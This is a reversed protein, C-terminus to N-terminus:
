CTATEKGRLVVRRIDALAKAMAEIMVPTLVEGIQSRALYRGDAKMDSAIRDLDFDAVCAVAKAIEDDGSPAPVSVFGETWEDRDLEVKELHFGDPHDRFGPLKMARACAKVGLEQGSYTGLNKVDDCGCPQERTHTLQFVSPM